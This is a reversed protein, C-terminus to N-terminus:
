AEQRSVDPAWQCDRRSDTRPSRKVPRQPGNTLIKGFEGRPGRGGRASARRLDRGGHVVGSGLRPPMLSEISEGKEKDCSFCKKREV